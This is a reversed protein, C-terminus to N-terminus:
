GMWFISSEKRKNLIKGNMDKIYGKNDTLLLYSITHGNKKLSLAEKYFIRDDNAHHQMAIMLIKIKKDM